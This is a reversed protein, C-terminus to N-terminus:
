PYGSTGGGSVTGGSAAQGGNGAVFIGGIAPTWVFAYSISNDDYCGELLPMMALTFILLALRTFKKKM